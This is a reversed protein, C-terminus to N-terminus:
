AAKEDTQPVEVLKPKRGLAEDITTAKTNLPIAQMYLSFGLPILKHEGNSMALVTPRDESDLEPEGDRNFLVLPAVGRGGEAKEDVVVFKAKIDKGAKDKHAPDFAADGTDPVVIVFASEDNAYQSELFESPLMAFVRTPIGIRDARTAKTAISTTQPM